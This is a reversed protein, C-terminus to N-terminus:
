LRVRRADDADGPLVLIGRGVAQRDRIKLDEHPDPVEFRSCEIVYRGVQGVTDRGLEKLVIFPNPAVRADLGVIGLVTNGALAQRSAKAHARAHRSPQM